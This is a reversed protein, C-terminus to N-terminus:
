AASIPVPGASTLRATQAAPSLWVSVEDGFQLKEYRVLTAAGGM